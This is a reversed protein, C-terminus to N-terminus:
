PKPKTLKEKEWNALTEEWGKFVDKIMRVLMLVFTLSVVNMSLSLVLLYYKLDRM